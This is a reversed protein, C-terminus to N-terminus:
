RGGIVEKLREVCRPCFDMEPGINKACDDCMQADCTIVKGHKIVMHPSAWIGVPFDCLKTAIKRKCFRCRDEYPIIDPMIKKGMPQKM